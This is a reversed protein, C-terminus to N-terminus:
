APAVTTGTGTSKGTEDSKSKSRSPRPFLTRSLAPMGDILAAARADHRLARLANDWTKGAAERADRAARVVAQLKDFPVLETEMRRAAEDASHAVRQIAKSLRADARVIGALAHLAKAKEGYSLEKIMSPSGLGFEAFPNARTTRTPAENLLRRALREIMEDQEANSQNVVGQRERLQNEAAEVAGHAAAYALHAAAFADLRRKVLTTDLTEAAALINAGSELRGAPYLGTKLTRM